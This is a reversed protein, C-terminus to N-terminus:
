IRTKIHTIDRCRSAYSAECKELKVSKPIKKFNSYCGRQESQPGQISFPLQDTLYPRCLNTQRFHSIVRYGSIM